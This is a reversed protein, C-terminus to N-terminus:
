YIQHVNRNADIEFRAPVLLYLVLTLAANKNNNEFNGKVGLTVQEMIDISETMATRGVTLDEILLFRNTRFDKFKLMNSSDDHFIGLADFVKAYSKAYKLTGTTSIFTHQNSPFNKSNITFCFHNLNNNKFVFPDKKRDGNYADTEVLALLAISPRVGSYMNTINLTQMSAPISQTIIIPRRFQYIANSQSLMQSQHLLFSDRLVYQRVMLRVNAIKPITATAIKSGDILYTEPDAFLLKFNIAVGPVLFSNINTANLRGCYQVIKSNKLEDLVESKTDDDVYFGQATLKCAASHHNFNLITELFAKYAFVGEYAFILKGAITIYLSKFLSFLINNCVSPNNAADSADFTYKSNDSKVLSLDASLYINNMDLMGNSSPPLNFEVGTANELSSVPSLEIDNTESVAINVPLPSFLNAMQGPILHSNATM